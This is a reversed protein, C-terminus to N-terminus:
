QAADSFWRLKYLDHNPMPVTRSPELLEVQNSWWREDSAQIYALRRNLPHVALSKIHSQEGIASHVRFQKRERDFFYVGAETSLLLDDSDNLAILDHGGKTPLPFREVMDLRANTSGSAATFTYSHLEQYGLACLRKRGGDWVVGHASELPFMLSRIEPRNLNFLVLRNGNAHTSSAIVVHDDPLCEISHANPVRAFWVAKGSPYEVAACGGSSSTILLLRGDRVPKCEDTTAFAARLLSDPIEHCQTADWQWRVDIAPVDNAQELTAVFVAQRGCFIVSQAM